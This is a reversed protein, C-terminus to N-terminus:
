LNKDTFTCTSSRFLSFSSTPINELFQTYRHLDIDFNYFVILNDGALKFAGRWTRPTGGWYLARTQHESTIWVSLKLSWFAKNEGKMIKATSALMQNHVHVYVCFSFSAGRMSVREYATYIPQIQHFYSKRLICKEDKKKVPLANIITLYIM